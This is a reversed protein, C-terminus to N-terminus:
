VVSERNPDLYDLSIAEFRQELEEVGQKQKFDREAKTIPLLWLCQVERYKASARFRKLATGDLYPWSILGYECASEDLWPRGFNVTHNLGLTAGTLHYHAIATLLEVHSDDSRPSLLHLEVPGCDARSAMGCTAYTWFHRQRNPQFELVCFSPPLEEVPGRNWTKVEFRTPWNSEYHAILKRHYAKM